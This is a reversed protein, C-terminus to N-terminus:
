KITSVSDRITLKPVLRIQVTERSDHKNELRDLLLEATRQGMYASLQNVSTLRPQLHECLLSDDFGVFSIQQPIEYGADRFATMLQITLPDNIGFIGTIGNLKRPVSKMGELYDNISRTSIIKAKLGNEAMVDQFGRVRDVESLIDCCFTTVVALERHGKDIFHQAVMRGAKYNDLAVYNLDNTDDCNNYCVVPLPMQKLYRWVPSNVSASADAIVGRVGLKLLRKLLKLEEESRREGWFGSPPELIIPCYGANQLAEKISIISDSIFNGVHSDVHPTLIGILSSDENDREAVFTGSGVKSYLSGESVLMAVARQVTPMSAGSDAAIARLSPLRQDVAMKNKRIYDLIYDKVDDSVIKKRM